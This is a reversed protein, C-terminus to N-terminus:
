IKKKKFVNTLKSTLKDLENNLKDSYKMSFIFAIIVMISLLIILVLGWGELPIVEGSLFLLNGSIGILRTILQMIFFGAYSIPLIGAIACLADDPFFPLLFMFFLLVIEKGRLRNLYKEVVKSDGVIWDIFKRGIVRGLFFAFASGLMIGIFSYIFGEWFGFLYSGAVITITSPIPIITVQLFSIVIFVLPGFVGTKNVLEQIQDKSIDDLGFHKCILYGVLIIGGVLLCVLVLRVLMKCIEKKNM